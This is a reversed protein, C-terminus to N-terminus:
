NNNFSDQLNLFREKLKKPTFMKLIGTPDYFIHWIIFAALIFRLGLENKPTYIALFVCVAIVFLEALIALGTLIYPMKSKKM